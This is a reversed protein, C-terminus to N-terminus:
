YIGCIVLLIIVKLRCVVSKLSNLTTKIEPYKSNFIQVFHTALKYKKSSTIFHYIEYIYNKQEANFSNMKLDLHLINM